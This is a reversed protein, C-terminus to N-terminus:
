KRRQWSRATRRPYMSTYTPQHIIHSVRSDFGCRISRTPLDATRLRTPQLAGTASNTTFVGVAASAEPFLALRVVLVFVGVALLSLKQHEAVQLFRGSM